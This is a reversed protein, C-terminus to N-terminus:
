GVDGGSGNKSARSFETGADTALIATAEGPKLVSRFEKTRQASLVGTRSVGSPVAIILVPAIGRVYLSSAVRLKARYDTSMNSM